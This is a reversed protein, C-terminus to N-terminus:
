PRSSKNPSPPRVKSGSEKAPAKLCSGLMLKGKELLAGECDRFAYGIHGCNYCFYPLREYSLLVIVDDDDKNVYVRIHQKLPRNVNIHVKIRAYRGLSLGNERRDIEGVVGVKSGGKQIFDKHLLVLPLNYCQVWISIEEFNIMSPTQLGQPEQFAM